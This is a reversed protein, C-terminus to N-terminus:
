GGSVPPIIIVEDNLKLEYEDAVYSENVAFSIKKLTKFAPFRVLLIEKLATITSAENLEISMHKTELIEKAIGYAELKISIKQQQDM